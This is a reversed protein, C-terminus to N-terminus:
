VIAETDVLVGLQCSIELYTIDPYGQYMNMYGQYNESLTWDVTWDMTRDMTWDVTWDMIWDMTWDMTWDVTLDM